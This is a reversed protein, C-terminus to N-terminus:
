YDKLWEGWIVSIFYTMCKSDEYARERKCESWKKREYEREREREREIVSLGNRERM